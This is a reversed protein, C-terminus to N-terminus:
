HIGPGGSLRAPFEIAVADDYIKISDESVAATELDLNIIEEGSKSAVSLSPDDWSLLFAIEQDNYLSQIFIADISPTFNRPELIVQGVLPLMYSEVEQWRRDNIETPLDENIWKSKIVVKIEPKKRPGLSHVYNALHWTKVRVEKMAKEYKKREEPTLPEGDEIKIKIDEIEEDFVFSEIVSPMPSGDIGAMLRQYIDEPNSGGRFNWPETLDAPRTPQNWEDM